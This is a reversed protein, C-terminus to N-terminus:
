LVGRRVERGAHIFGLTWLNQGTLNPYYELLRDVFRQSNQPRRNRELEEQHMNFRMLLGNRDFAIAALRTCYRWYGDILVIRALTQFEQAANATPKGIYFKDRVWPLVPSNRYRPTFEVLWGIRVPYRGPFPKNRGVGPPFSGDVHTKLWNVDYHRM